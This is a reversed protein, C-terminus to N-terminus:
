QYKSLDAMNVVQSADAQLLQIELELKKKELALKETEMKTKVIECELLERYLTETAAATRERTIVPVFSAAATRERTTNPVVSAAATRERTTNPVVSAAATRERTTNPVFSPAGASVVPLSQDKTAVASTERPRKNIGVTTEGPKVVLIREPATDTTERPQREVGTEERPVTTNVKSTVLSQKDTVVTEERPLNPILKGPADTTKRSVVPVSPPKTSVANERQASANKASPVLPRKDVVVNNPKIAFSEPATTEGSVIQGLPPNNLVAKKRTTMITIPFLKATAAATTEGQSPVEDLNSRGLTTKTNLERADDDMLHSRRLDNMGLRRDESMGEIIDALM